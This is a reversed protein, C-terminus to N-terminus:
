NSELMEVIRKRILEQEANSFYAHMSHKLMLLEHQSSSLGADFIEVSRLSTLEDRESLIIITPVTVDALIRKTKRMLKHPQILVRLWLLCGPFVRSISHFRRYQERIEIREQCFRASIRRCIAFPNLMYVKLPTSILAVGKVHNSADLSANLALLGGISHGVLIVREHEGAYRRIEAQLHSEWDAARCKAFELGTRGHGPLLVSAAAYGAEHVADMLYSFQDPSGNFGHIFIVIGKADPASIHRPEHM